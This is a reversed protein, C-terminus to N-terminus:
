HLRMPHARESSCACTCACPSRGRAAAPARAPAHPAGEREQLCVHVKKVYLHYPGVGNLYIQVWECPKSAGWVSASAWAIAAVCAVGVGRLEVRWVQVEWGVCCRRGPGVVACVGFSGARRRCRCGAAARRTLGTGRGGVCRRRGRVQM